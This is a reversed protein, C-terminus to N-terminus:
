SGVIPSISAGASASGARGADDTFTISFTLQAAPAATTIVTLTSEISIAANAAVHPASNFTGDAALGTTLVFHQGVLTAGASGSTERVQYRLRYLWGSSNSATTTPEVTATLNTIAVVAGTAIPLPTPSSSSACAGMLGAALMSSAFRYLGARGAM